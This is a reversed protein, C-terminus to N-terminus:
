GQSLLESLQTYLENPTTSHRMATILKGRQDIVYYRSSHEVGYDERQSEIESINYYAGYQETVQDISQTTGTLGIVNPHYFRAHEALADVSDRAPDVSILLAQTSALQDESLRNLATSIVGMSNPCVEPCSLFGFYMVVVKGHFDRLSVPGETSQLTFDGGLDAFSRKPNDFDADVTLFFLGVVVGLALFVGIVTLKIARQSVQGQGSM